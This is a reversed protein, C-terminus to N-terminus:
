WGAPASFRGSPDTLQSTTFDSPVLKRFWHGGAGLNSHCQLSGAHFGGRPNVLGTPVLDRVNQLPLKLDSDNSILIVGDVAGKLVDTLMHTAVNVDSGKEENHLYSVMFRADAIPKGDVDQVKVPWEPTFVQPHAGSTPLALPAYKVRAIYNGYEVYDVSKQTILAQLYQWQDAHGTPNSNQDIRATCFVIKVEPDPVQSWPSSSIVRQVLARIDLWRWGQAGRGCQARGGYYLNYGDVYVGIKM